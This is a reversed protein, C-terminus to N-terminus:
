VVSDLPRALEWDGADTKRSVHPWSRRAETESSRRGHRPPADPQFFAGFDPSTHAVPACPIDRGCPISM